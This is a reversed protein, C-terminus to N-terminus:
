LPNWQTVGSQQGAALARVFLGPGEGYLVQYLPLDGARVVYSGTQMQWSDEYTFAVIPNKAAARVRFQATSPEYNAYSYCRGVCVRDIMHTLADARLGADIVGGIV